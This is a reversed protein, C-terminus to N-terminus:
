GLQFCPIGEIPETLVAIALATVTKGECQAYTLRMEGQPQDAHVFLKPDITGRQLILERDLFAQQFSKLSDTPDTMAPM